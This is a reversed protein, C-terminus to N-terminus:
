TISYFYDSPEEYVLETASDETRTSNREMESQKDDAGVIFDGFDCAGTIEFRYQRSIFSRGSYEAPERADTPPEENLIVRKRSQPKLAKARVGGTATYCCSLAKFDRTEISEWQGYGETRTFACITVDRRIGSIGYQRHNMQKPSFPKGFDFGRTEIVRVIEKAAGTYDIDYDQQDEMRYVRNQGDTDRSFIWMATEGNPDITKNLAWPQVGIWLGEYRRPIRERGAYIPDPNLVILGNWYVYGEETLQPAVTTFLRGGYGVSYCQDLMWETDRDLWLDVEFSNNVTYDTSTFSRQQDRLNAIGFERTRYYLNANFGEFSYPSTAGVNPVFLRAKGLGTEISDWDSLAGRVDVSYVNRQTSFVLEGGNVDRNVAQIRGIATISETDEPAVITRINASVGESLDIPNQFTSVFISTGFEDVYFLRNQCYVGMRGVGIENSSPITRRAESERIYLPLSQGDNVIAGGPITIVWAKTLSENNRDNGNRVTVRFRNRMVERLEFVWGSIVVLQLPRGNSVYWGVGQVHGTLWVTQQAQTLGDIEANCAAYAFRQRIKEGTDPILCNVMKAVQSPQLDDPERSADMGGPFGKSGDLITAM